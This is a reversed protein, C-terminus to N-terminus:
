CTVDDDGVLDKDEGHLGSYLGIKQTCDADDAEGFEDDDDDDVVVVDDDGVDDVQMPAVDDAVGAAALRGAAEVVAAADAALRDTGDVDAEIM